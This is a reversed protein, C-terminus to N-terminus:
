NLTYPPLPSYKNTSNHKAQLHKWLPSTSSGKGWKYSVPYPRGTALLVRCFARSVDQSVEFAAWSAQSLDGMSSEGDDDALNASLSFIRLRAICSKSLDVGIRSSSQSM